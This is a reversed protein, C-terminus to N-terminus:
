NTKQLRKGRRKRSQIIFWDIDIAPEVNGPASNLFADKGGLTKDNGDNNDGFLYNELRRDLSAWYLLDFVRTEDQNIVTTHDESSRVKWTETPEVLRALVLMVSSAHWHCAGAMYYTELNYKINLWDHVPKTLEERLAYYEEIYGDDGDELNNMIENLVLYRPPLEICKLYDGAKRDMIMTYHDRCTFHALITPKDPHYMQLISPFGNDQCYSIACISVATLVDPHDLFPVIKDRWHLGFDYNVPYRTRTSGRSRKM